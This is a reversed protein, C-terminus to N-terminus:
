NMDDHKFFVYGLYLAAVGFVVSAAVTGAIAGAGLSADFIYNMDNGLGYTVWKSVMTLLSLNTIGLFASTVEITTGNAITMTLIFIVYGLGMVVYPNKILFTLFAFECVLRLYPLLMLLMRLLVPAFAVKEGWGYLATYIAVPLSTLFLAGVGGVIAAAIVRGLYVAYRRHGGSLEYNQTKDMLDAGCIQATVLIIYFLPFETLVAGDTAFFEGATTLEQNDLWIPLMVILVQMALTMVVMYRIIKDRVIQFFQAKLINKM